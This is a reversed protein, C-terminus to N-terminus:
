GPRLGAPSDIRTSKWLRSRGRVAKLKEHLVVSRANAMFVPVDYSRQQVGPNAYTATCCSRSAFYRPLRGSVVDFPGDVFLAPDFAEGHGCVVSKRVRQTHTSPLAYASASRSTCDGPPRMTGRSASWHRM